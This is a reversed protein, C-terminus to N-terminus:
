LDRLRMMARFIVQNQQNYFHEARLLTSVQSVSSWNLLMAGLTAKEAEDNHPPITDKLVSDM